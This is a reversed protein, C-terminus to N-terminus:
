TFVLRSLQDTELSSDPVLLSDWSRFGGVLFNWLVKWINPIFSLEGVLRLNVRHLTSHSPWCTFCGFPRPWGLFEGYFQSRPHSGAIVQQHQELNGFLSSEMKPHVIALYKKSCFKGFHCTPLIGLLEIPGHGEYWPVSYLLWSLVTFYDRCFQDLNLLSSVSGNM